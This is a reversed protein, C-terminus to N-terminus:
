GHILNPKNWEWVTALPSSSSSFSFLTFSVQILLSVSPPSSLLVWFDKKSPSLSQSTSWGGRKNQKTDNEWKTNMSGNFSFASSLSSVLLPFSFLRDFHSFFPRNSFFSLFHSHLLRFQSLHLLLHSSPSFCNLNTKAEAESTKKPADESWGFRSSWAHRGWMEEGWKRHDSYSESTKWRSDDPHRCNSWDSWQTDLNYNFSPIGQHPKM